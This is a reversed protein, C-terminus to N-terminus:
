GEGVCFKGGRRSIICPFTLRSDWSSMRIQISQTPLVALSAAARGAAAVGLQSESTRLKDFTQSCQQLAASSCHQDASHRHHAAPLTAPRRAPGAGCRSQPPAVLLRQRPLRQWGARCSASCSVCGREAPRSESSPFSRSIDRYNPPCFVSFVVKRM